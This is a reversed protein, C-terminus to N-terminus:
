KPVEPFETGYQARWYMRFLDRLCRLQVTLSWQLLAFGVLLLCALWVPVPIMLTFFSM